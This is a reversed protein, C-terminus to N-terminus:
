TIATMWAERAVQAVVPNAKTKSIGLRKWESSSEAAFDRWVAGIFHGTKKVSLEIDIDGARVASLVSTTSSQAYKVVYDHAEDSLPTKRQKQGKPKPQGHHKDGKVKFWTEPRNDDVTAWIVGNGGVPICEVQDPVISTQAAAPGAGAACATAVGIVVVWFRFTNLM